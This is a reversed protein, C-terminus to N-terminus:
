NINQLVDLKSIIFNKYFDEANLVYITYDHPAFVVYEDKVVEPPTNYRVEGIKEIKVSNKEVRIKPEFGKDVFWEMLDLWNDTYKFFYYQRNQKKEAVGSINKFNLM